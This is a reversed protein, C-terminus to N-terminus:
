TRRRIEIQYSLVTFVIYSLGLPLIMMNVPDVKYFLDVNFLQIRADPFIHNFYKYFALVGLNAMIIFTLRSTSGVTKTLTLNRSFSYNLLVIAILIALFVPIFSMYYLVSATLLLIWRWKGPFIYYVLVLPVLFIIYAISNFLM